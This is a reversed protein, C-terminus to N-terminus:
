LSLECQLTRLRVEKRGPGRDGSWSVTVAYDHLDACGQFPQVDVKVRFREVDVDPLAAAAAPGLLLAEELKQQALFLARMHFESRRTDSGANLVFQFVPLLLFSLLAIACLVEVISLGQARFRSM